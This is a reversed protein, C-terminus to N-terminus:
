KEVEPPKMPIDNVIHYGEELLEQVDGADIERLCDLYGDAYGKEYQERDYQLARILENKDVTLGLELIIKSAYNTIDKEMTDALEECVTRVTAEIPPKYSM